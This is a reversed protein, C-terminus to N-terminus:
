RDDAEAEEIIQAIQGLAAQGARIQALLGERMQRPLEGRLGDQHEVCWDRVRAVTSLKATLDRKFRLAGADIQEVALEMGEQRAPRRPMPDAPDPTTQAAAREQTPAPTPDLGYQRRITAVIARMVAIGKRAAKQLCLAQLDTQGGGIVRSLDRGCRPCNDAPQTRLECGPCEVVEVPERPLDCLVELGELGVDGDLYARRAAEGCRRHIRLRSRVVRLNRGLQAAVEQATLQEGEMLGAYGAGEEWPLLDARALNDILVVRAAQSEPMADYVVAPVTELGVEQAARLRRHGALLDYRGNVRRLTVPSIVGQARVSDMLEAMDEAGFHQRPQDERADILELPVETMTPM